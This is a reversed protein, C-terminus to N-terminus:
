FKFHWLCHRLWAWLVSKSYSFVDNVVDGSRILNYEEGSVSVNSVKCVLPIIAIVIFLFIGILKDSTTLGKSGKKNM